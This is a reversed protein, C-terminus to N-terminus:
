KLKVGQFSVGDKYRSLTLDDSEKQERKSREKRFDVLANERMKEIIGAKSKAATYVQRSKELFKGARLIAQDARKIRHKLGAIYEDETIFLSIPSPSNGLNERRQLSKKLESILSFKKEIELQQKKQSLALSGLAENEQAKRVELAANLKFKFKRM